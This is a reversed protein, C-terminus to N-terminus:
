YYVKVAEFSNNYIDLTALADIKGQDGTISLLPINLDNAVKEAEELTVRRTKTDM